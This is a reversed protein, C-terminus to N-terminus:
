GLGCLQEISRIIKPFPEAVSVEFVDAEDDGPQLDDFQSQLLEIAMFHHQRTELRGAIVDFPAVLHVFRVPANVTRIRDRYARKLASCALVMSDGSALTENCHLVIADLWPARDEDTLPIKAAMKDRNAQPHLDDADTLPLGAREALRSGVTSKGCGAVGMVVILM